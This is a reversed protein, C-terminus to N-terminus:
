AEGKSVGGFKIICYFSYQTADSDSVYIVKQWCASGSFASSKPILISFKIYQSLMRIELRNLMIDESMIWTSNCSVFLRDRIRLTLTDTFGPPDRRTLSKIYFDLTMKQAFREARQFYFAEAIVVAVTVFADSLFHIRAAEFKISSIGDREIRRM